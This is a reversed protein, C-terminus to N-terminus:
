QHVTGTAPNQQLSIPQDLVLELPAGEDLYFNRSHVLLAISVIGGLAAGVMSGIAIGKIHSAPVTISSTVPTTCGPLPVGFDPPLSSTLTTPGSNDAARGILAGLGIGAVPAIIAGAASGNGPDKIAYGEDSQLTVPGSITAVYGNPFTISMSQLHLIGRGNKNELKNVKGQLFAGPPILVQNGSTVPSAIQAYVDDGHHTNKSRVPHTLFLPIQTRAPITITTEAPTAAAPATQQDAAAAPLSQAFSSLALLFVTPLVLAQKANAKMLPVFKRYSYSSGTFLPNVTAM